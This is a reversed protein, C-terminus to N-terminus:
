YKLKHSIGRWLKLDLNEIHYTLHAVLMSRITEYTALQNQENVVMFLCTPIQRESAVRVLATIQDLDGQPVKPGGVTQVITLGHIVCVFAAAPKLMEALLIRWNQNHFKVNFPVPSLGVRWVAQSIATWRSREKPLGKLREVIVVKPVDDDSM